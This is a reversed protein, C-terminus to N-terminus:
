KPARQKKSSRAKGNFDLCLNIWFEFDTRAETGIPEVICYGKLERGKMIMPQFGKRATLTETLAPDFRCMINQGVINVCMKGNVMFALGSFMKKEEINLKSFTTLYDRVRDSLLLDYAM